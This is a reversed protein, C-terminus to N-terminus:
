LFQIKDKWQETLKMYYDHNIQDYLWHTNSILDFRKYHSETDNLNKMGEQGSSEFLRYATGNDNIFKINDDEVTWLSYMWTFYRKDNCGDYLWGFDYINDDKLKIPYYSSM